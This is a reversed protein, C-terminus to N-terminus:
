KPSVTGAAASLEEAGCDLARVQHVKGLQFRLRFGSLASPPTAEHRLKVMLATRDCWEKM